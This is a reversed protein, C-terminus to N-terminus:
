TEWRSGEKFAAKTFKGIATVFAFEAEISVGREFSERRIKEEDDEEEMRGKEKLMTGISVSPMLHRLEVEKREGRVFDIRNGKNQWRESKEGEVPKRSVSM